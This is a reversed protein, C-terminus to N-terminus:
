GCQLNRMLSAKRPVHNQKPLTIGDDVGIEEHPHLGKILAPQCERTGVKTKKLQEVYSIHGQGTKKLSSWSLYPTRFVGTILSISPELIRCLHLFSQKFGHSPEWSSQKRQESM